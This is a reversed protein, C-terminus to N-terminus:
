GQSRNQVMTLSGQYPDLEYIDLEIYYCYAPTNASGRWTVYLDEMVLNERDILSNSDIQLVDISGNNTAWAIQRNDSLDFYQLSSVSVAEETSLRLTGDPFSVDHPLAVFKTVRVATDFRGDFVNIRMTDGDVLNRGQVRIVGRVVREGIKKV